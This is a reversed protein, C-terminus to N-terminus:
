RNKKSFCRQTCNNWAKKLIKKTWHIWFNTGMKVMDDMRFEKENEEHAKAIKDM